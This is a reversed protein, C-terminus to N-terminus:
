NEPILSVRDIWVTGSIQNDLKNSPPRAVRVILLRTDANTEFELQQWSWGSTGVMNETSESLSGLDFADFLQFRPGSGTAIGQV